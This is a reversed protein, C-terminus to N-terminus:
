SLVKVVRAVSEVQFIFAETVLVQDLQMELQQHILITALARSYARGKQHSKRKTM